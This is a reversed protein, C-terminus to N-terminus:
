TPYPRIRARPMAITTPGLSTTLTRERTGHRAVRDEVLTLRARGLRHAPRGSSGSAPSGSSRWRSSRRKILAARFCRVTEICQTVPKKETLESRRGNRADCLVIATGGGRPIKKLKGDAFFAIWAGDASFFPSTAGETSPLATAILQELRRVFLVPAGQ